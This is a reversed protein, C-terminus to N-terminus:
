QFLDPTMRRAKARNKARIFAGNYTPSMTRRSRVYGRVRDNHEDGHEYMAEAAWNADHAAARSFTIGKRAFWSILWGLGPIVKLEGLFFLVYLGVIGILIWKAYSWARGWWTEPNKLKEVNPRAVEATETAIATFADVIKDLFVIGTDAVHPRLRAANDQGEAAIASTRDLSRLTKEKPSSCAAAFVLLAAFTWKM